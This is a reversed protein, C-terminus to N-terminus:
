YLYYAAGGAIAALAAGAAVAQKWSLRSLELRIFKKPGRKADDRKKKEIDFDTKVKLIRDIDQPKKSRVEESAIRKQDQDIMTFETDSTYEVLYSKGGYVVGLIKQGM